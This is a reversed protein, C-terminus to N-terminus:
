EGFAGAIDRVDGGWNPTLLGRAVYGDFSSYPWDCVRAPKDMSQRIAIFTISM